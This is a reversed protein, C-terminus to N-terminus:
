EKVAKMEVRGTEWAIPLWERVPWGGLPPRAGLVWEGTRYEAYEEVWRGVELWRVEGM